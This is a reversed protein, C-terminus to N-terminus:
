INRDIIINNDGLYAFASKIRPNDNLIARVRTITNNQKKTNYLHIIYANVNPNNDLLENLERVDNELHDIDYNLSLEIVYEPIKNGLKFDDLGIGEITSPEFISIDINGRRGNGVVYLANPWEKHILQTTQGSSLSYHKSLEEKSSLIKFLECHLSHEVRHLFPHERFGEVFEVIAEEVVKKIKM